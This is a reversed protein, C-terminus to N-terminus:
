GTRELGLARRAALAPDWEPLMFMDELGDLAPEVFMGLLHPLATLGDLMWEARHLGPHARGVEQRFGQRLDGGLHGEGHEGVIQRPHHVDDAGFREDFGDPCLPSQLTV